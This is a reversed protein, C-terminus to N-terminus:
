ISPYRRESSSNTFIEEYLREYRDVVSGWTFKESVLQIANEGMLQRQEANSLLQEIATIVVGPSPETVIGANYADIEPLSCRDSIVVPTGTACAELVAMPQGESYSPHLFIDMADLADRKEAESVYGLLSVNDLDCDRIQERFASEYGDDPGIIVFSLDSENRFGGACETVIDLGKKKHLRGVFGVIQNTTLDHKQRFEDGDGSQLEELDVGNPIRVLRQIPVDIEKLRSKEDETLATVTEANSLISNAFAKTFLGRLLPPEEENPQNVAGHPTVIYPIDNRRAARAVGVALLHPFGHIHIVDYETVTANLTRRFGIPLPLNLTKTIWNSLNPFYKVTLGDINIRDETNVRGQEGHTDTTFVTVDHGRDVLRTALRHVVRLAGGHEWAPPYYPYVQLIRM